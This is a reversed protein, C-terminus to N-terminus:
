FYTLQWFMDESLTTSNEIVTYHTPTATGQGQGVNQAILFFNFNDKVIKDSVLTGGPANACDERSAGKQIFLRDSIRKNVLIEAFQPKYNPEIRAFCAHIEKLEVEILDSVQSEGVGDRYLIITDPYFNNESKYVNLAEFLVKGVEKM